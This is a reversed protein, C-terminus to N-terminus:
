IKKLINKLETKSPELKIGLATLVEKLAAREVAGAGEKAFGKVIRKVEKELRKLDEKIGKYREAVEKLEKELGPYLSIIKAQITGSVLSAFLLLQERSKYRMRYLTKWEPTEVIFEAREM